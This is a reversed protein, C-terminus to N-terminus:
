RLQEKLSRIERRTTQRIATKDFPFKHGCSTCVRYTRDQLTIPWSRKDKPHRCGFMIFSLNQLLLAVNRTDTFSSWHSPREM